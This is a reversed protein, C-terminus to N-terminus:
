EAEEITFCRRIWIPQPPGEPTKAARRIMGGVRELLGPSAEEELGDQLSFGLPRAGSEELRRQDYTEWSEGSSPMAFARMPLWDTDDFSVKNWDEPPPALTYRWTGDPASIIDSPQAEFGYLSEHHVSEPRCTCIVLLAGQGPAAAEISFGLVHEGYSLLPRSSEPVEGDVYCTMDGPTYSHIQIPVSKKRNRWRFVVGGCGAPVECSGHSELLLEPSQKSFRSLTNVQLEDDAM